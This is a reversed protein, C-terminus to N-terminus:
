HSLFDATLRKKCELSLSEIACGGNLVKLIRFSLCKRFHYPSWLDCIRDNKLPDPHSSALTTEDVLFANLFQQHNIIIGCLAARHFTTSPWSFDMICIRHRSNSHEWSRHRLSCGQTQTPVTAKPCFPVM